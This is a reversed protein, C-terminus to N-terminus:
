HLLGCQLSRGTWRLRIGVLKEHNSVLSNDDYGNNTEESMMTPKIYLVKRGGGGGGPM